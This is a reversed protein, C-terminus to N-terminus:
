CRQRRQLRVANGQSQRASRRHWRSDSLRISAPSRQGAATSSSISSAHRYPARPRTVQVIPRSTRRQRAGSLLTVGSRIPSPCSSCRRISSRSIPLSPQAASAIASTRGPSGSESCNRSAKLVHVTSGPHRRAPVLDLSVASRRADYLVYLGVLSLLAAAITKATLRPLGPLEPM